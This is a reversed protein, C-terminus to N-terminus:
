LTEETTAAPQYIATFLAQQLRILDPGSGPPPYGHSTLVDAVDLALGLTFRTDEGSTPRPLPYAPQPTPSNM